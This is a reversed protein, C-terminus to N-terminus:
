HGGLSVTLAAGGEESGDLSAHSGAVQINILGLELGVGGGFRTGGTVHALGARIPLFPILRLEAGVGTQTKPGLVLGDGLQQRLDGTITLIGLPSFAAGVALAPKLNLQTIRDRLAQPANALPQQDWNGTSSDKTFIARAPRYSFKSADWAFTNVINKVSAGARLRGVQWAAGVDLGVGAGNNLSSTDSMVMPFNVRVAVPNSTLAGGNEIGTLLVNGIIYKGTVGLAFTQQPLPGLKLAISQGISVAATTIVSADITSGSLTYDKPSGTFGANGFLLIEMTSPSLKGSSFVGTSLQFGIRGLNGAVFTLGGDEAVSQGGRSAVSNLWLVKTASDILRGDFDKLMKPTIPGTALTGQAPLIALSFKSNGPMGLNAPNWNVANFNRALATFNGALGVSAASASVLQAGAVVSAIAVAAAGALILRVAQKFTIRM